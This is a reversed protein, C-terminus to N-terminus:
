LTFRDKNNIRLRSAAKQKALLFDQIGEEIILRAAEQAIRLRIQHKSQIFSM